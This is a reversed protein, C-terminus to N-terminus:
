IFTKYNCCSYVHVCCSTSKCCKPIDCLEKRFDSVFCWPQSEKNGPNRCYNHGILEPYDTSALFIQQSWHLCESGSITRAAIGRYNEGKENYCSHDTFRSCIYIFNYYTEYQHLVLMMGHSVQVTNPIGLRICREGEPSGISPLDDCDPLIDAQGILHHKKAIAYEM